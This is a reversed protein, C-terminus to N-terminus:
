ILIPRPQKQTQCDKQILFLYISVKADRTMGGANKKMMEHVIEAETGNKMEQAVEALTTSIVKTDVVEIEEVDVEIEEVDKIDLCEYCILPTPSQKCLPLM